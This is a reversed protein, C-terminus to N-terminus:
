VWSPASSPSKGPPYIGGEAPKVLAMIYRDGREPLTCTDASNACAVVHSKNTAVERFQVVTLGPYAGGFGDVDADDIVVVIGRARIEADFKAYEKPTMARQPQATLAFALVAAVIVLPKKM